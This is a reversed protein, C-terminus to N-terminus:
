AARRRKRAIYPVPDNRHDCLEDLFARKLRPSAIVREADMPTELHVWRAITKKDVDAARAAGAHSTRTKRMAQVLSTSM